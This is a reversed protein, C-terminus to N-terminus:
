ESPAATNSTTTESTAASPPLSRGEVVSNIYHVLHWITDPETALAQAFGPMPTGNIGSYIRRYIDIRRRGGHLMGATLDAAPAVNGWTDYNIQPRTEESMARLQILYESSLWITQGRGDEGHCKSCGRTIFAQRGMAITEDTMRPQPTLPLVVQHEAETWQQHIEQLTQTFDVLKLDQDPELDIRAIDGMKLELEGRHAILTVYDVVDEIDQDPLLPFGPMSTGKAGKRVFRILDQRTPKAGYPTSTFKFKGSRYDRPKPQLYKAAEGNGDGTTGHCGACREQFVVAGNALHDENGLSVLKPDEGEPVEADAAMLFRPKLPSGFLRTLNDRIQQEHKDPLDKTAKQLVFEPQPPRSCGSSGALALVFVAASVFVGWCLRRLEFFM